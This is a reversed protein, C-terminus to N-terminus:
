LYTAATSNDTVWKTLLEWHGKTKMSERHGVSTEATWTPGQNETTLGLNRLHEQNAALKANHWLKYESKEWHPMDETSSTSSDFLKKNNSDYLLTLDIIDGIATNQM